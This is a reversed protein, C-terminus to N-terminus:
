ELRIAFVPPLSPIRSSFGSSDAILTRKLCKVKPANNLNRHYNMLGTIMKTTAEFLDDTLEKIDVIM